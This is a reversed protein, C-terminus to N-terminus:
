KKFELEICNWTEGLCEYREPIDNGDTMTLTRSQQGDIHIEHYANLDEPTVPYHERISPQCGTM